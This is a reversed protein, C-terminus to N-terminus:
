EDNLQINLTNIYTDLTIPVNIKCVRNLVNPGNEYNINNLTPIEEKKNVINGNNKM